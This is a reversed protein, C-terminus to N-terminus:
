HSFEYNAVKLHLQFNLPHFYSIQLLKCILNFKQIKKAM